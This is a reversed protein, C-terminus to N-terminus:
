AHRTKAFPKKYNKQMYDRIYKTDPYLIDIKAYEEFFKSKAYSTQESDLCLEQYLYLILMEDYAASPCTYKYSGYGRGLLLDNIITDDIIDYITKDSVPYTAKMKALRAEILARKEMEVRYVKDARAVAREAELRELASPGVAKKVGFSKSGTMAEFNVPTIMQKVKELDDGNRESYWRCSIYENKYTPEFDAAHSLHGRALEEDYILGKSPYYLQKNLETVSKDMDKTFYKLVYNALKDKDIIRDFVCYGFKAAYDTWRYMEKGSTIGDRIYDPILGDSRVKGNSFDAITLLELEEPNIGSFVAHCHWAGDRHQEPIIVRLIKAKGRSKNHIFEGLDAIYKDLDHRDYKKADLTLTCFFDWENSLILAQVRSRARSLSQEFKKGDNATGRPRKNKDQPYEFGPRRMVNSVTLKLQNGYKKLVAVNFDYVVKKSQSHEIQLSEDVPELTPPIIPHLVTDGNCNVTEFVEYGLAVWVKDGLTKWERVIQLFQLTFAFCGFIKYYAM